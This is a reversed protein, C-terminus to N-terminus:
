SALWSARKEAAVLEDERRPSLNYKPDKPHDDTIHKMIDNMTVFGVVIEAAPDGYKLGTLVLRTPPDGEVECHRLAYFAEWSGSCSQVLIGHPSWRYTHRSDRAEPTQAERRIRAREERTPIV